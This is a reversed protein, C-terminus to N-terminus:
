PQFGLRYFVASNATPVPVTMQNVTTSGPVTFWAGGLSNTQVLLRWGTYNKPWSLQLGTGAAPQAYSLSTPTTPVLPGASVARIMLHGGYDGPRFGGTALTSDIPAVKSLNDLNFTGPASRGWYSGTSDGGNDLVVPYKDNPSLGVVNTFSVAVLFREGGNLLVPTTLNVRNLSAGNSPVPTFNESSLRAAGLAPNGSADTVRYISVVGTTNAAVTGIVVDVGTILDGGDMATFANAWWNDVAETGDSANVTTGRTTTDMFYTTGGVARILLHGGYDGPRFGGAALTQDIPAVKSLNDLNFTNPASRAWYSGTSDGGNDIVFPYMDSPALGIVNAISVAVLFREGVKLAVPSTLTIQNMATGAGGVPTFNQSYLRTAGLAPNGGPDTVRYISVVGAAGAAVTACGFDVRKILNAGPAAVFENAFWNDLPETGDSANVVTGRTNNDLSYVDSGIARILLHGGYDGPRFGGPALTQDIPAVKSLNDLNFTNPASRAWYSGTSDGGNDIVFPYKDNPALGIVNAISVAVLFRDGVNLAVPSTLNIQNWAVGSSGVPTFTQSYLRTAGLAPNGGPDTVRYISVVGSAGAAVTACGFDVRTILNGGALATFENAFWNDLPETGDSANVITGRSNSDLTYLSARVEPAALHAAAIGLLLLKTLARVPQLRRSKMEPEPQLRTLRRRGNGPRAAAQPAPAQVRNPLM